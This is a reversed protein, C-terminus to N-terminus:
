HISVLRLCFGWGLTPPLFLLISREVRDSEGGIFLLLVYKVYLLYSSCFCLVVVVSLLRFACVLLVLAARKERGRKDGVM